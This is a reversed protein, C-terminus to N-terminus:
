YRPGESILGKNVENISMDYFSLEGNYNCVLIRDMLYGSEGLIQTQQYEKVASSIVYTKGSYYFTNKTDVLCWILGCGVYKQKIDLIKEFRTPPYKKKQTQVKPKVQETYELFKIEGTDDTEGLACSLPIEHLLHQREKYPTIVGPGGNDKLLINALGELFYKVKKEPADIAEHKESIWNQECYDQWYCIMRQINERKNEESSYCVTKAGAPTVVKFQEYNHSM